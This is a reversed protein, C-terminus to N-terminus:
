NLVKKLSIKIVDLYLYYWNQYRSPLYDPLQIENSM